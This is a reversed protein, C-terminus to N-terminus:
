PIVVHLFDFKARMHFKACTRATAVLNHAIFTTM